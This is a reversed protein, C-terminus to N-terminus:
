FMPAIWVRCAQSAPNIISLYSHWNCLLFCQTERHALDGIVMPSKDVHPTGRSRCVTLNMTKPTLHVRIVHSSEQILVLALSSRVRRAPASASPRVRGNICCVARHPRTAWASRSEVQEPSTRALERTVDFAWTLTLGARRM